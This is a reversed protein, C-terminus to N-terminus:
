QDAQKIRGRQELRYRRVMALAGGVIQELEAPEAEPRGATLMQALAADSEAAEATELWDLAMSRLEDPRLQGVLVEGTLATARVVVFPLGDFLSVGDEVAIGELDLPGATM